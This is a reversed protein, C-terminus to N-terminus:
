THLPIRPNAAAPRVCAAERRNPCPAASGAGPRYHLADCLWRSSGAYQGGTSGGTRRFKRTCPLNIKLKRSSTGVEIITRVAVPHRRSADVSQLGPGCLNCTRARLPQKGERVTVGGGFSFAEFNGTGPNSVEGEYYRHIRHIQLFTVHPGLQSRPQALQIRRKRIKGKGGGPIRPGRPGTTAQRLRCTRAWRPGKCSPPM